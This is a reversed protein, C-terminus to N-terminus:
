VGLRPLVNPESTLLSILVKSTPEEMGLFLLSENPEEIKIVFRNNRDDFAM